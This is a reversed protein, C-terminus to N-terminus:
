SIMDTAFIVVYYDLSSEKGRIPIINAFGQYSKEESKDEGFYSFELPHNEIKSRRKTALTMVNKLNEPLSTEEIKKMVVDDSKLRLLDYLQNNLYVIDNEANVLMVNKKFLNALVDFKRHEIQIRQARLEEFEKLKRIMKNMERSIEGIEDDENYYISVDFNFDQLERIADHIKKFPLAIKRPLVIGLLLAGLITIILTIMMNKKTEDIISKIRSSQKEAQLYQLEQFLSFTELIKDALDSITEKGGKNRKINSKDILLKLADVYGSMKGIIKKIKTEEYISDLTQLQGLFTDCIEKLRQVEQPTNKKSIIKHQYKLTSVASIRIEDILYNIDALKSEALKTEKNLSDLYFFIVAGLSIVIINAVVFSAGVRNKLSINM